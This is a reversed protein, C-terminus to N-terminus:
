GRQAAIATAALVPLVEGAHTLPGMHGGAPAAVQEFGARRELLDGFAEVVPRSGRGPVASVVHVKPVDLAALADLEDSRQRNPMSSYATSCIAM